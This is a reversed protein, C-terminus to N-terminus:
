QREDRIREPALMRELEQEGKPTLKLRFSGPSMVELTVLGLAQLDGVERM